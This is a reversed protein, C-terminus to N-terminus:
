GIIDASLDGNSLTAAINANRMEIDGIVLEGAKLKIDANAARLGELALPSKSWGGAPTESTEETSSEGLFPSLDLAPMDLDAVLRPVDGSLNFGATGTGSVNDLELKLGSVSFNSPQGALTGQLNFSNLTEGPALEVGMVELLGRLNASSASLNGGVTGNSGLALDGKYDLELLKGNHRLEAGQVALASLPGKLGGSFKVSELASVAGGDIGMQTFLRGADSISSNLTGDFGLDDGILIAGTYDTNMLDSSQKFREFTINPATFAGQVSGAIDLSGIPSLTVPLDLGLTSAVDSISQTKFSFNGNLPTASSLDILGSYGTEMLASKQRAREIDLKMAALSGSVRGAVNIEGLSALDIGLDIGALEAVDKLNNSAVDFGGDFSPVDSM